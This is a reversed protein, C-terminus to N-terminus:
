CRCLDPNSIHQNSPTNERVGARERQSLSFGEGDGEFVQSQIPPFAM